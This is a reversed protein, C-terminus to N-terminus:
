SRAAAPGDMLGSCALGIRCVGGDDFAIIM